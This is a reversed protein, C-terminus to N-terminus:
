SPLNLSGSLTALIRAVFRRGTDLNNNVAVVNTGVPVSTGTQTTFATEEIFRIVSSAIGQVLNLNKSLKDIEIQAEAETAVIQTEFGEEGLIKDRRILSLQAEVNQLRAILGLIQISAAPDVVVGPPGAPGAIQEPRRGGKKQFAGPAGTPTAEAM